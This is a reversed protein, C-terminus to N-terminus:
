FSSDFLLGSESSINLKMGAQKKIIHSYKPAPASTTDRDNKTRNSPWVEEVVSSRTRYRSGIDRSSVPNYGYSM